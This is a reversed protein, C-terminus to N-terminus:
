LGLTSRPVTGLVQNQYYVPGGDDAVVTTSPYHTSVAFTYVNARSIALGFYDGIFGRGAPCPDDHGACAYQTIGGVKQQSQDPDWTFQSVRVNSGVRVAGAGTDKYAQLSVDICTNADGRHEPLISPDNPCDARRDYFAVAVAGDPGAAVSPQFQDARGVDNVRVPTAWTLGGDLSQTFRVDFQDGDWDEYTLSLHGGHTPSSVFNEIIGDRFLTNPLFGNPNERPTAAEVPPAFTVGDDTSRTVYVHGVRNKNTTDFGGVYAVYLTGDSGVSPYVYTTAPTTAGPM